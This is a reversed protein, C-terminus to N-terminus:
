KSGKGEVWGELITAVDMRELDADKV